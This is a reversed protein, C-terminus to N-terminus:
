IYRTSRKKIKDCPVINHFPLKLRKDRINFFTILQYTIRLQRARRFFRLYSFFSAPSGPGSPFGPSSSGKGRRDDGVEFQDDSGQEYRIFSTTSLIVKCCQHVKYKTFNKKCLLNRQCNYGISKVFISIRLSCCM